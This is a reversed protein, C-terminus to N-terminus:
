KQFHYFFYIVFYCHIISSNSDFSVGITHGGESNYNYYIPLFSKEKKPNEWEFLPNISGEYYLEIKGRPIKILFNSWKGMYLLHALIETKVLKLDVNLNLSYFTLINFFYKIIQLSVKMKLLM